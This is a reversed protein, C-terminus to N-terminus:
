VLDFECWFMIFVCYVFMCICIRTYIYVCIYIDHIYIYIYEGNELDMEDMIVLDLLEVDMEIILLLFRIFFSTVVIRCVYYTITKM